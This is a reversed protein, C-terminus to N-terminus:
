GHLRPEWTAVPKKLLPCIKFQSLAKCGGVGGISNWLNWPLWTCFSKKGRKWHLNIWTPWRTSRFCYLLTQTQHCRESWCVNHAHVCFSLDLNLNQQDPLHWQVWVTSKVLTSRFLLVRQQVEWWPVGHGARVGCLPLVPSKFVTSAVIACRSLIWFSM